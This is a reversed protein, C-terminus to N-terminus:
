RAHHDAAARRGARPRQPRLAPTRSPPPGALLHVQLIPLCAEPDFDGVIALEGAQSGLYERYLQAVQDRTVAQLRAILNKSQQCTASTMRPIRRSTGDSCALPWCVPTQACRSWVPSDHTNCSRSLGAPYRPERLVQRLIDLVAPLTDRKAQISFSVAGSRAVRRRGGRGGGSGTSLTAQLKDLEDRMHQYSTMKTGRLMLGGLLRERGRLRQPEGRRRLAPDADPSVEEGRSRKPLLTM